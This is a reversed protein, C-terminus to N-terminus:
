SLQIQLAVKEDNRVGVPTLIKVDFRIRTCNLNLQYRTKRNITVM